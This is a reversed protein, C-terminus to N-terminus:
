AVALFDKVLANLNEKIDDSLELNDIANFEKLLVQKLKEKLIPNEKWFVKDITLVSKLLDGEYYDGEAFLNNSLIDIVPSVLYKLGFGQNILMRYDEIEFESIPMNCLEEIRQVLYSSDGTVKKSTIGMLQNLTKSEM